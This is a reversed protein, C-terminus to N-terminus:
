GKTTVKKVKNEAIKLYEQLQTVIETGRQYQKIAEDIELDNTELDSLITELENNLARYDLEKKTM